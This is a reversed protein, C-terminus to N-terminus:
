KGFHKLVRMARLTNWRSPQGAMEMEFHVQGPHKSNLKWKGEATRKALIVSVADDMRKDYNVKAYRFYDMARLIDYYWRCPYFLKLFDPKIIQGTRHSRFLKHRLIFEQSQSKAGKLEKLRYRYGNNEYEQIGELVSLTSHLSSHTAGKRNSHCNFGGDSMRERLLFDVISKLFEEKVHFYSAYNLAMGNVCIDSKQDIGIPNLGGDAGKQTRFINNLTDKIAKNGPSINLNRLDLLTYHSSIWKPQYFGRGWHGNPQRRALFKLGWGDSEIRSRLGPKNTGLLDRYTQYQISVDGDLLWSIIEKDTM